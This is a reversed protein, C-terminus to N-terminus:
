AVTINIELGRAHMAELLLRVFARRTFHKIDRGRGGGSALLYVEGPAITVTADDRTMFKACYEIMENERIGNSSPALRYAENRLAITDDAVRRAEEALIEAVEDEGYISWGNYGPIIHWSTAM